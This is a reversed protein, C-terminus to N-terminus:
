VSESGEYRIKFLIADKEHRFRVVETFASGDDLHYDGHYINDRLWGLMENRWSFRISQEFNVTALWPHECLRIRVKAYQM